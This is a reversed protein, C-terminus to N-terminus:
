YVKKEGRQCQFVLFSFLLSAVVDWPHKLIVPNRVVPPRKRRMTAEPSPPSLSVKRMMVILMNDALLAQYGL